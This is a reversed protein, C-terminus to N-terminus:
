APPELAARVRADMSCIRMEKLDVCACTIEATAILTEGRYIRSDFRLKARNLVGVWTDVDLVDDFHAPRRYRVGIEAVPLARQHETEFARYDFGRGRLLEIRAQELFRLYAAHHVVAGRDTDIYQVRVRYRSPAADDSPLM